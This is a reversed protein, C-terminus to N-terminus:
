QRLDTSLGQRGADRWRCRCPFSPKRLDSGLASATFCPHMAGVSVSVPAAGGEESFWYLRPHPDGTLVVFRKPRRLFVFAKAHSIGEFTVTAVIRGSCNVRVAEGAHEALAFLMDHGDSAVDIVRADAIDVSSLRTLTDEEFRQLSTQLEGVVWLGSSAAVLRPARAIAYPAPCADPEDNCAALRHLLGADDHWLIEGARTVAPAHAGQTAFLRATQEFPAIPRLTEQTGSSEHDIREFLCASWQAPTSFRYSRQAPVTM